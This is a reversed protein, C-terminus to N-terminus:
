KMSRIAASCDYMPEHWKRNELEECVKAAKEKTAEIAAEVSPPATYLPVTYDGEIRDHEDPCICDSIFGDPDRWGWAVPEQPQTLVYGKKSPADNPKCLWGCHRCEKMDQPQATELAVVEVNRKKIARYHEIDSEQPQALAERLATIAKIRKKSTEACYGLPTVNELAELAMQM